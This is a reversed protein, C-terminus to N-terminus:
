SLRHVTLTYQKNYLQALRAYVTLTLDVLTGTAQNVVYEAEYGFHPVPATTAATPPADPLALATLMLQHITAVNTRTADLGGRLAFRLQQDEASVAEKNETFWLSVHPFFNSFERSTAGANRAAARGTSLVQGLVQYMYDHRLSNLMKDEHAVEKEVLEVLKRTLQDEADAEDLLKAKLAGWTQCLQSYNLLHTLRGDPALGVVVHEYLAAVRLALQEVPQIADKRSLLPETTHLWAARGVESPRLRVQVQKTILTQRYEERAFEEWRTVVQYRAPVSWAADPLASPHLSAPLDPASAPAAHLEM